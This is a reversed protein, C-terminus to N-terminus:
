PPTALKAVFGERPIYVIQHLKSTQRSQHHKPM